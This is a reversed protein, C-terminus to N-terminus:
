NEMIWEANRTSGVHEAYIQLKHFEREDRQHVIFVIKAEILHQNKEAARSAHKTKNEMVGPFNIQLFLLANRDSQQPSLLLKLQFEFLKRLAKTIKQRHFENSFCKEENSNNNSYKWLWINSTGAPSKYILVIGFAGVNTSVTRAESMTKLNNLLCLLMTRRIGPRISSKCRESISTSVDWTQTWQQHCLNRLKIKIKIPQSVSPSLIRNINFLRRWPSRKSYDLNNNFNGFDISRIFSLLLSQNEFSCSFWFDTLRRVGNLVHWLEHFHPLGNVAM